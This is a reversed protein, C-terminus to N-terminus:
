FTERLDYYISCYNNKILYMDPIDITSQWKGFFLGQLIGNKVM